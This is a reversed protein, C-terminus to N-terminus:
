LALASCVEASILPHELPMSFGLWPGPKSNQPKKRGGSLLTTRRCTDIRENSIILLLGPPDSTTTYDTVRVALKVGPLCTGNMVISHSYLAVNEM